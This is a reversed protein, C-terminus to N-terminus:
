DRALRWVAVGVVAAVALGVSVWLVTKYGSLAEEKQDLEREKLDLERDKQDGARDEPVEIAARPLSPLPGPVQSALAAALVLASFKM